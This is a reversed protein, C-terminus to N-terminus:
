LQILYVMRDVPRLTYVLDSNIVGHQQICKECKVYKIRKNKKLNYRQMIELM